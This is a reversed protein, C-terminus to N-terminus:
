PAEGAQETHSTVVGAIVDGLDRDGDGTGMALLAAHRLAQRRSREMFEGYHRLLPVPRNDQYVGREKLWRAGLAVLVFLLATIKHSEALADEFDDPHLGGSALPSVSGALIVVRAAEARGALDAYLGVQRGVESNALSAKEGPWGDVLRSAVWLGVQRNDALKEAVAGFTALEGADPADPPLAELGRVAVAYLGHTRSARRSHAIRATTVRRKGGM